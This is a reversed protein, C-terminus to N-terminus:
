IMPLREYTHGGIDIPNSDEPRGKTLDYVKKMEAISAHRLIDPVKKSKQPLIAQALWDRLRKKSM